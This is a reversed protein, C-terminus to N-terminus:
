SAQMQQEINFVIFEAPRNVAVFVSVIMRGELIDQATMTSGLGIRVGFAERSRAGALAGDRWLTNLYTEIMSKVSVWTNPTNPEFVFARLALKISQKITMITRKVNIYRWEGSNGDLTRAGWVLIGKGPFSRIANISKGSIPDVNLDDQDSHSIQVSPSIVGSVGVNAPAKWVGRTVDVIKYIGAMAASPPLVNLVEHIGNIITNYTPSVVMLGSHLNQKEDETPEITELYHEILNHANIEPLLQAWVTLELNIQEFTIDSIITMYTNLWPYYAAGYSLYETGIHTRFNTIVDDPTGIGARAKFGNHIDLIAIRNQMNACHELVKQYLTYCYTPSLNVADPIIIMTPEEVNKLANLGEFPQSGRTTGLLVDFDIDISSKNEYTRVSVIYCDGGGNAYFFKLSKYMLAKNNKAYDIVKDIGNITIIPRVENPKPDLVDFKANFDEGFVEIYEFMSRIKVPKNLVSLGNQVAKETYGIFAPIATEVQAVSNPIANIEEIYVGPAKYKGAM